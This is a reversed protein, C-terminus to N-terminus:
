DDCLQNSGKMVEVACVTLTLYYIFPIPTKSLRRCGQMLGGTMNLFKQANPTGCDERSVGHERPRLLILWGCIQYTAPPHVEEPLFAIKSHCVTVREQM